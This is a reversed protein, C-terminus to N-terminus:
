SDAKVTKCDIVWVDYVPHQLASLAPSSAFMWGSFVTNSPLQAAAAPAAPSIAGGHSEAAPAPESKVKASNKKPEPIKLNSAPAPAQDAIEIFATTEPFEEPPRKDCTRATITLTGFTATGDMPIEIDTYKAIIKDLARLTVSVPKRKDVAELNPFDGDAAGQSLEDLESPGPPAGPDGPAPAPQGPALIDDLAPDATQAM